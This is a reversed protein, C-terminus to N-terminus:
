DEAQAQKGKLSMTKLDKNAPGQIVRGDYNFRSGHCPCDWSKEASNWSVICGMHTCTASVSHTQGGELKCVAVNEADIKVVRGEGELLNMAREEDPVSLRDGVFHKAVDVNEVVFDKASTVPKFRNPDFLSSWNNARGLVLDSILMGSVTSNTMGWGGFGTAVFLRESGPSAKGIYPVRDVTVNDQTSWRYEISEVDFRERAWLELNRYRESTDGGQGTKHNEGGVMWIEGGDDAPNSRFSHFPADATIFMGEPAKGRLRCGVVYSRKPHMRSFYMARDPYPFHTAIVVRGARIIGRDTKVSCTGDDEDVDLVRTEECVYSGGGPIKEVLALLYKRPHFRAQDRFEIAGKIEFPLPTTEVYSAPLGLKTAAEVEATIRDMQAEDETYVYASTRTFDCSIGNEQILSAIKEIAAQQADAYAQAGDTGFQSILHDYILGHQSTVKATTNGTVSKVVRGAEILAVSMGAQKLLLATTIGAMGGGLVAVDVSIDGALRPFNTEPTTALWLSVPEGPLDNEDPSDNLEITDLSYFGKESIYLDDDRSAHRRQKM